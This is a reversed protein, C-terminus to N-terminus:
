FSKLSKKIINQLTIVSNPYVSCKVDESKGSAIRILSGNTSVVSILMQMLMEEELIGPGEGEQSM